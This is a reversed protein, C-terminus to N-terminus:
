AARYSYILATAVVADGAVKGKEHLERGVAMTAKFAAQHHQEGYVPDV